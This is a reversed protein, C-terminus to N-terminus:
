ESGGLIAPRIALGIETSPTRSRLPDHQDEELLSNSAPNQIRSDEFEHAVFERFDARVVVSLSLNLASTSNTSENRDCRPALAASLFPLELESILNIM